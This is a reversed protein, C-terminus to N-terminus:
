ANRRRKPRPDITQDHKDQKYAFLGLREDPNEVGSRTANWLLLVVFAIALTLLAAEIV